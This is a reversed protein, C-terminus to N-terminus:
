TTPRIRHGVVMSFSPASRASVRPWPRMITMFWVEITSGTTKMVRMHRLPTKTRGM